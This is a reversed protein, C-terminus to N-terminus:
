EDAADGCSNPGDDYWGDDVDGDPDDDPGLSDDSDVRPAPAYNWQDLTTNQSESWPTLARCRGLLQYDVRQSMTVREESEDLVMDRWQVSRTKWFMNRLESLSQM